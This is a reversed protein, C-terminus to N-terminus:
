ASTAPNAVATDAPQLHEIILDSVRRVLDDAEQDTLIYPPLLRVVNGATVNLLIGTDLANSVLEVCPSALEIGLMLGKGRIETVGSQNHLNQEFGKLMREGLEAAREVLNLREIENVVTLGVRCAIPNGGFTSGHSGPQILEAAEGRALCAGIPMGNGLAKALSIVDPLVGEHQYAFWKGTRGMGTQIEDVIMLLDNADCIARIKKLFDEDPVNIGGEGQVPEIMVAVINDMRKVTSEIAAVDNFPVVEFGELMPGFGVKNKANGTAAITAMTRGHFATDTVIITPNEIGKKHGHLRAIKICAENAEAGSNGFFAKEMGSLRCLQEGLAEQQPIHYLNSIHMLQGAQESIAATIAPNAHGLACVAVGSLADIYEKGTDDWVRVGNGRAMTVPLRGYAAMLSAMNAPGKETSLREINTCNMQCALRQLWRISQNVTLSRHKNIGRAQWPPTGSAFM